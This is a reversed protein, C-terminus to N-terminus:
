TPPPPQSNDNLVVNSNLVDFSNQMPVINVNKYKPPPASDFDLRRKSNRVQTFDGGGTTPLAISVMSSSPPADDMATSSSSENETRAELKNMEIDLRKGSANKLEIATRLRNHIDPGQTEHGRANLVEIDNLLMNRAATFFGRMRIKEVVRLDSYSSEGNMIRNFEAISDDYQPDRVWDIKFSCM